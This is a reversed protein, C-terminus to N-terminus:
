RADKAKTKMAIHTQDLHQMSGNFGGPYDSVPGNGSRPIAGPACLSGNHKHAALHENERWGCSCRAPDRDAPPRAMRFFPENSSCIRSAVSSRRRHGVTIGTAIAFTLFRVAYTIWALRRERELDRTMAAETWASALLRTSKPERVACGKTARNM